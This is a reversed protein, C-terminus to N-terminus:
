LLKILFLLLGTMTLYSDRSRRTNYNDPDYEEIEANFVSTEGSELDEYNVVSSGDTETKINVRKKSSHSQTLFDISKSSKRDFSSESFCSSPTM